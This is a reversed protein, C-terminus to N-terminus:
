WDRAARNRQFREMLSLMREAEDHLRLVRDRHPADDPVDRVLADSLAHLVTVPQSLDHM